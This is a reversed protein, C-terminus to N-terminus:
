AGGTAHRADDAANEPEYPAPEAETSAHGAAAPNFLTALQAAIIRAMDHLSSLQEVGDRLEIALAGVCGGTRLLPAVVAGNQGDARKVVRLERARVASATANDDDRAIGSRLHAMVRPPYGHAFAPVLAAGSEDGVWLIVGVANLMQAAHELARVLEDTDEVQGLRTCLSALAALDPEFSAATRPEPARVADDPGDSARAETAALMEDTEGSM